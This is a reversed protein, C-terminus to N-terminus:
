HSLFYTKLSLLTRYFNKANPQKIQQSQRVFIVTQVDSLLKISLSIIYYCIFLFFFFLFSNMRTYRVLLSVIFVPFLLIFFVIIDRNHCQYSYYLFDSIPIGTSKGYVFVQKLKSRHRGNGKTQLGM